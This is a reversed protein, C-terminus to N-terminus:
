RETQQKTLLAESMLKLVFAQFSEGTELQYQLWAQEIDEPVSVSHQYRATAM